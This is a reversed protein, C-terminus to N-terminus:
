FSVFIRVTPDEPSRRQVCPRRRALSFVSSHGSMTGTSVPHPTKTGDPVTRPKTRQHIYGDQPPRPVRWTKPGTATSDDGDYLTCEVAPERFRSDNRQVDLPTEFVVHCPNFSLPQQWCSPPSHHFIRIM